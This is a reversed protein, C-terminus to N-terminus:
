MLVCCHKPYRNSFVIIKAARNPSVIITACFNCVEGKLYHGDAKFSVNANVIFADALLRMPATNQKLIPV